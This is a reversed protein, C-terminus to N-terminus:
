LVWEKKLQKLLWNDFAKNMAQTIPADAPRRRAKYFKDWWGSLWPIFDGRRSRFTDARHPDLGVDLCWLVWRVNAGPYMARLASATLSDTM